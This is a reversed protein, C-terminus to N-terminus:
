LGRGGVGAIGAFGCFEGDSTEYINGGDATLDVNPLRCDAIRM